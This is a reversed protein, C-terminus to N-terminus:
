KLRRFSGTFNALHQGNMTKLHKRQSPMATPMGKGGSSARNLRMSAELVKMGDNVRAEVTQGKPGFKRTPKPVHSIGQTADM